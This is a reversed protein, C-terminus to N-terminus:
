QADDKLQDVLAKAPGGAKPKRVRKKARKAAEAEAEAARIRHAPIDRSPHM